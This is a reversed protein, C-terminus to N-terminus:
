TQSQVNDLTQLYQEIIERGIQAASVVENPNELNQKAAMTRLLDLLEKSISIMLPVLKEKSM